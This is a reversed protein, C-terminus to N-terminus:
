REPREIAANPVTTPGSQADSVRRTVLIRRQGVRGSAGDDPGVGTQKASRYSPNDYLRRALNRAIVRILAIPARTGPNTPNIGM